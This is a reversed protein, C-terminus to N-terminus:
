PSAAASGIYWEPHRSAIIKINEKAFKEGNHCDAVEDVVKRFTTILAWDSKSIIGIGMLYNIRMSFDKNVIVPFGRNYVEEILDVNDCLIKVVDFCM